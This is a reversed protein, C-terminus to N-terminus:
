PRVVERWGASTVNGPTLEGVEEDGGSGGGGVDM